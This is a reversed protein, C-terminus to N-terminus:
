GAYLGATKQILGALRDVLEQPQKVTAHPGYGLVWWVIEDLGDVECHFTISGDDHEDLEQTPHWTTDSVADAVTADFDIEVRYTTEGRIMRWAKGRFGDLSFDKPITYTQDTLRVETFRNLKLRRIENRGGHHGIAYWARQDFSLAYPHFHFAKGGHGSDTTASEYSCVLAKGSEMGRQILGFVDQISETAPGSAALKIDIHEELKEIEDRVRPPLQSRLKEIATSAPGTMAIQEQGGIHDGLAVLALAEGATLQVPPLFYDRRIRYTRAEEDFYYPINLDGIVKLDRYITREEVSCRRALDAANGATGQQMLTIELLLRHVKSYDAPM